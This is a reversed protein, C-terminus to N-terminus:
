RQRFPKKIFNYMWHRFVNRFFTIIRLRWVTSTDHCHRWTHRHPFFHTDPFICSRVHQPAWTGVTDRFYRRKAFVPRSCQLDQYLSGMCFVCFCLCSLTIKQCVSTPSSGKIHKSEWWGGGGEAVEHVERLYRPLSRIRRSCAPRGLIRVTINFRSKQTWFVNQCWTSSTRAFVTNERGLYKERREEHTIPLKTGSFQESM